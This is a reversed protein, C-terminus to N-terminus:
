LTGGNTIKKNNDQGIYEILFPETLSKNFELQDDPLVLEEKVLKLDAKNNFIVKCVEMNENGLRYLIEYIQQSLESLPPQGEPFNEEVVEETQEEHPTNDQANIPSLGTNAMVINPYSARISSELGLLINRAYANIVNDKNPENLAAMVGALNEEKTLDGTDVALRIDIFHTYSM